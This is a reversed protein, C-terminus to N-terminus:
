TEAVYEWQGTTTAATTDAAAPAGPAVNNDLGHRLPDGAEGGFENIGVPLGGNYNRNM